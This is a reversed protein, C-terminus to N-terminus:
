TRRVMLRVITAVYKRGRRLFGVVSSATKSEGLRRPRCEYGVEVVAFGRRVARGLFDICYEGYDGRLRVEKLVASRAAVFGSTYDTVSADILLSAFKNIVWSFTVPMWEGRSDSGGNSYRSGIAVDAGSEIRAVLLPITGPPMSLDCDMWVITESAAEEIGRVIASTLGRESTRHILRVRPDSACLEEVIRWTGDPSDDDVVIIECGAVEKQIAGILNGINERENYTPLVVSVRPMDSDLYTDRELHACINVDM